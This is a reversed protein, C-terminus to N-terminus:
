YFPQSLNCKYDQYLSKLGYFDCIMKIMGEDNLTHKLVYMYIFLLEILAYKLGHYDDMSSKGMHVVNCRIGYYYRMSCLSKDKDLQFSRYDENSFVTPNENHTDAYKLIAEKFFEEQALCKLNEFQKNKGYRLVGYRDIAAWLLMYNMQLNLFNSVNSPVRLIPLINGWITGIVDLIMPDNRKDYSCVNEPYEIKVYKKNAVLVNMQQNNKWIRTWRYMKYSKSQSIIRYAEEADERKFYILSGETYYGMNFKKTLFPVGNIMSLPHNVGSFWETRKEDIFDEIRSFAIEGPKFVDYAFFPLDINKPIRLKYPNKKEYCDDENKSPM